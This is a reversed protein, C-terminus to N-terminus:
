YGLAMFDATIDSLDTDAAVEVLVGPDAGTVKALVKGTAKDYEFIYGDKPLVIVNLVGKPFYKSINLAEGGTTYKDSFTFSGLLTKMAFGYNKIPNLNAAM